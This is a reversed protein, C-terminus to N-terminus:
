QQQIHAIGPQFILRCQTASVQGDEMGLEHLFVGFILKSM